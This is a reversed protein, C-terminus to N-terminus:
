EDCTSAADLEDVEPQYDPDAELSKRFEELQKEIDDEVTFEQEEKPNGQQECKACEVPAEEVGHNHEVVPAEVKKKTSRKKKEKVAEPMAPPESDAVKLKLPGKNHVRCFECDAQANNKCPAGKATTASCKKRESEGDTESEVKKARPKRPKSAKSAEVAESVGDSVEGRKKNVFAVLADHDINFEAAIEGLTVEMEEKFAKRMESCLKLMAAMEKPIYADTSEFAQERGGM